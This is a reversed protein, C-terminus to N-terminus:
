RVKDLFECLYEAGALMRFTQRALLDSPVVFLNKNKVADIEEWKQWFRFLKGQAEKSGSSIIVGPNKSLVAEINIIPTLSDLNAFINEGGCLTIIESIIHQRNVTMLPADWVQYLTSIKELKSFRNSISELQRTFKNTMKKSEGIKGTLVGLRHYVGSFDELRSIEFAFVKFGMSKLQNITSIGNGSAWAFIIDPQLATIVEYNVISHNNVRQISSAQTPFNSYEDAGVVLHGADIEFLLETLNPALSVIRKIPESIEVKAGLDDVVIVNAGSYHTLLCAFLCTLRFFQSTKRQWPYDIFFFFNLFTRDITLEKELRLGAITPM